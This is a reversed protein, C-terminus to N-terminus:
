AEMCCDPWVDRGEVDMLIGTLLWPEAVPYLWETGDECPTCICLWPWDM